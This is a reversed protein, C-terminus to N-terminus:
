YRSIIAAIKNRWDPPFRLQGDIHFDAVLSRLLTVRQKFEPEHAKLHTRVKALAALYDTFEDDFLTEFEQRLRSALSPSANSTSISLRLHGPNVLAAMGFNSCEPQDYSNILTKQAQAQKFVTHTLAQNNSVTNMVLFINDLDHPEFCRQHHHLRGNESWEKLTPTLKPSVVMLRAGAALLRGGKDEAERGGGIILCPQDMVDLGVQFYPNLSSTSM